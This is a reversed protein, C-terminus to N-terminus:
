HASIVVAATALPAGSQALQGLRDAQRYGDGVATHFCQSQMMRIGIQEVSGDYCLRSAAARIRWKFKTQGEASSINLDGFHVIATPAESDAVVVVPQAHAMGGLLSAAVIGILATKM